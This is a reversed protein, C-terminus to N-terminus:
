NIGGLLNLLFFSHILIVKLSLSNLFNLISEGKINEKKHRMSCPYIIKNDGLVEFIVHIVNENM